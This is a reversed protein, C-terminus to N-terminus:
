RGSTRSPSGVLLSGRGRRAPEGGPHDRRAPPAGRRRGGGEVLLTCRSRAFSPVLGGVGFGVALPLLAFGAVGATGGHAQLDAAVCFLIGTRPTGALLLGLLGRDSARPPSCAPEVPRSRRQEHAGFVGLVAAGGAM